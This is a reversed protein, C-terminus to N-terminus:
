HSTFEDKGVKVFIDRDGVKELFRRLEKLDLKKKRGIVGVADASVKIPKGTIEVKLTNKAKVTDEIKRKLTKGM